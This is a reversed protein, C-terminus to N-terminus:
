GIEVKYDPYMMKGKEELLIALKKALTVRDSFDEKMIKDGTYANNYSDKGGATRIADTFFNQQDKSNNKGHTIYGVQVKTSFNMGKAEVRCSIAKDLAVTKGWVDIQGFQWNVLLMGYVPDAQEIGCAFAENSFRTGDPLTCTIRARLIPADGSGIQGTACDSHNTNYIEGSDYGQNYIGHPEDETCKYFAEMSGGPYQSDPQPNKIIPAEEATNAETVEKAAEESSTDPEVQPNNEPGVSPTSTEDVVAVLPPGTHTNNNSSNASTTESAKTSDPTQKINNEGQKEGTPDEEKINDAKGQDSPTASNTLPISDVAGKTTWDKTTPLNNDNIKSPLIFPSLSKLNGDVDRVGKQPLFSHIPTFSVSVDLVHPLVLMDTDQEDNAIEWSYDKQWKLGISTIIGPTRDLLDGISIKVFNGRMRLNRYDPATQSVLYNLKRYLPMMEGRSQAAIKFSFSVTRKFSDYTYFEEGRGNYKFSNWGADYQDSWDDLFARFVMTEAQLPNDSNIAEIRFRIMDKLAPDNLSIDSGDGTKLIDLANIRDITPTAASQKTIDLRGNKFRHFGQGVDGMNFRDERRKVNTGELAAINNLYTSRLDQNSDGKWKPKTHKDGYHGIFNAGLKQSPQVDTMLKGVENTMYLEKGYSNPSMMMPDLNAESIVNIGNKDLLIKTPQGESNIGM